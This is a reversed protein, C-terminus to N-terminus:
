PKANAANRARMAAVRCRASCYKAHSRRGTLPGTLFVDKCHECEALKAGHMAVMAIEMTMFQMLDECRLLMRPAGGEGALDFAPQLNLLRYRALSSNIAHLADVQSSGAATALWGRLEKQQKAVVDLDTGAYEDGTRPSGYFL